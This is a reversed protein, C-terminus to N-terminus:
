NASYKASHTYGLSHPQTLTASHTHSLSHSQALTASHTHSLLHPQTLTASHTHSLSHPQQSLGPASCGGICWSCVVVPHMPPQKASPKVLPVESLYECGDLGDRARVVYGPNDEGIETPHLAMHQVFPNNTSVMTGAVM